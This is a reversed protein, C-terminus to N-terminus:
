TIKNYCRSKPATPNMNTHKWRDEKKIIINCQKLTQKVTKQYQQTPNKNIMIFHNNNIFNIITHKHEEQKLIVLTKGKDAKTITFKDKLIKNKINMIQKWEEKNKKNRAKNNRNIEKIKRAVFLRM